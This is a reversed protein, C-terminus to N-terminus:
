KTSPIFTKSRKYLNNLIREVHKGIEQSRIFLIITKTIIYLIIQNYLLYNKKKKKKKKTDVNFSDTRNIWSEEISICVVYM